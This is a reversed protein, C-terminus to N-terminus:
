GIWHSALRYCGNQCVNAPNRETSECDKKQWRDSTSSWSNKPFGYDRDYKGPLSTRFSQCRMWHLWVSVTSCCVGGHWFQRQLLGRLLLHMEVTATHFAIEALKADIKTWRCPGSFESATRCPRLPSGPVQLAKPKFCNEYWGSPSSSRIIGAPLLVPWCRHTLCFIGICPVHSPFLIPLVGQVLCTSGVM